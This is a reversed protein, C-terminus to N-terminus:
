GANKYLLFVTAYWVQKLLQWIVRIQAKKWLARKDLGTIMVTCARWLGITYIFGGFFFSFKQVSFFVRMPNIM